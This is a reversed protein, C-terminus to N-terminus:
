EEGSRLLLMRHLTNRTRLYLKMQSSRLRKYLAVDTIGLSEAVAKQEFRHDYIGLDLLRRFTDRQLPTWGSKIADGAALLDNAPSLLEAPLGALRTKVAGYDDHDHVSNIADRANWFASGDAGLARDTRIDTAIEGLGIGSRFGMDELHFEIWDLMHFPDASPKLLGQFEDGVTITFRAALDSAFHESCAELTRNLAAQARNRDSIERSGILDSIIAIYM